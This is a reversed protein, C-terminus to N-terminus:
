VNPDWPLNVDSDTIIDTSEFCVVEIEVQEFVTEKTNM